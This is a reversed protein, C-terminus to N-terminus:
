MHSPNFPDLNFQICGPSAHHERKLERVRVHHFHKTLGQPSSLQQFHECGRTPTRHPDSRLVHLLSLPHVVDQHETNVSNTAGALSSSAGRRSSAFARHDHHWLGGHRSPTPRQESVHFFRGSPASGEAKM